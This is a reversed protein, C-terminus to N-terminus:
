GALPTLESELDARLSVLLGKLLRSVQMQSVGLRQAIERQTCEEVFRWLLLARDRQSLRNLARRLAIRDICTAAVDDDTSVQAGLSGGAGDGYPVDLSDPQYSDSTDLAAGLQRANVELQGALEGVSLERGLRQELESRAAVAKARLEQLQRPPRIMWCHDRFYRKLEGTITPIAYSTFTAGQEPQFRDIALWLAMRAVQVLDDYDVGRGRYRGALADCLPLNLEAIRDTIGQRAHPDDTNRILRFLDGTAVERVSQVSPVVTSHAM